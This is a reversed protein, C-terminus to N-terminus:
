PSAPVAHTLADHHMGQGSRSGVPEGHFQKNRTRRDIGPAEGALAAITMKFSGNATEMADVKAAGWRLLVAALGLRRVV